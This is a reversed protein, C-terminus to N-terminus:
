CLLKNSPLYISFLLCIQYWKLFLVSLFIFYFYMRWIKFNFHIYVIQFFNDFSYISIYIVNLSFDLRLFLHFPLIFRGLLTAMNFIYLIKFCLSLFLMWPLSSFSSIIVSFSIFIFFLSFTVIALKIHTHTYIYIHCIIFLIGLFFVIIFLYLYYIIYIDLLLLYGSIM